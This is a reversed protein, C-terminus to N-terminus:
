PIPTTLVRHEVHIPECVLISGVRDIVLTASPDSPHACEIPTQQKPVRGFM